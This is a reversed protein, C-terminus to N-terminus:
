EAARNLRDLRLRVSLAHAGLRESHALTEVAPGVASLSGPTMRLTTTRKLFDLM